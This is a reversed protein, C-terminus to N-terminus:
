ENGDKKKLHNRLSKIRAGEKDCKEFLEECDKEVLYGLAITIKLGAVVEFLSGLSINLFRALENDRGSGRGEAINLAISVAARRLQSKLGFEESRPLKETLQYALKIIEIAEQWVELKEFQYM